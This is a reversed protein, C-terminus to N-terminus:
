KKKKLHLAQKKIPQQQQQQQQQQSEMYKNYTQVNQEHQLKQEHHEAQRAANYLAQSTVEEQAHLAQLQIKYAQAQKKFAQAQQQEKLAQAQQQAKLAQAQQQAKLAQAQQQQAEVHAKFAQQQQSEVAALAKAHAGWADDAAGKEQKLTQNVPEIKIEMNRSDLPAQFSSVVHADNFKFVPASYKTNKNNMSASRNIAPFMSSASNLTKYLGSVTQM